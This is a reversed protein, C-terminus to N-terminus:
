YVQIMFRKKFAEIIYTYINFAAIERQEKIMAQTTTVGINGTERRTLVEHETNDESGSRNTSAEGDNTSAVFSQNNADTVDNYAPSMTNTDYGTVNHQVTEDIQDHTNGSFTNQSTGSTQETEERNGTLDRTETYSGDKNWIPNYKLVLTQWITVFNQHNIRSWLEIMRKLMDPDSYVPALEGLEFLLELKLDEVSLEPVPSIYEPGAPLEAATPVKLGDLITEDYNYIAMLPTWIASM